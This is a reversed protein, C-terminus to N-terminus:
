ETLELLNNVVKTEGNFSFKGLEQHGNKVLVCEVGIEKAVEYDHYTDGILVTENPNINSDSMYNLGNQLKSKAYINNLGLISDFYQKIGREKVQYELSKQESASLIVQKYNKSQFYKLAEIVGLQLPASESFKKYLDIYEVSLNEFTEKEFNFGVIKYYDQVPFTFIKKYTDIDLSEMNRKQLMVNMAEVCTEVDNLLTGNWDWIILKEKM